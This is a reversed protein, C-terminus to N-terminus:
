GCDGGIVLIKLDLRQGPAATAASPLVVLSLLVAIAALVAVASRKMARM